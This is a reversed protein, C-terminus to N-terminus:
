YAVVLHSSPLATLEEDSILMDFDELTAYRYAGSHGVKEAGCLLVCKESNRLAAQKPAADEIDLTLVDGNEADVGVAGMFCIDFRHAELSSAALAGIFGNYEANFSGGPCIARVAPNKSVERMVDISNSVVTCALSGAAIVQALVIASSSIDLYITQKPQILGYAKQAITVKGEHNSSVREAVIRNVTTEIRTAGGYVKRCRGNAALQRLDKRICDETVDFRVALESVTVRGKSDILQAIANQREELYM